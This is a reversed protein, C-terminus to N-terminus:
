ITPSTLDDSFDSFNYGGGLKLINSFHYYAGVLMGTRADQADIENRM